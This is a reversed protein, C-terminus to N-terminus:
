TELDKKPTMDSTDLTIWVDDPIHPKMPVPRHDETWRDGVALGAVERWFRAAGVNQDQFPIEWVGAHRRLMALAADRGVGTRRIGRIVFFGAMLRRAQSLGSVLGFGVPGSDDRFLYACRDPDSFYPAYRDDHNFRGTEDPRTLRLQSLDHIYLQLLHEVVPRVTTDVTEVEVPHSRTTVVTMM